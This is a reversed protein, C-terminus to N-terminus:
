QLSLPSRQNILVALFDFSKRAFAFNQVEMYVAQSVSSM